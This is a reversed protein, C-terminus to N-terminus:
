DKLAADIMAEWHARHGGHVWGVRVSARLMEETPERMAQIAARAVEELRGSLHLHPKLPGRSLEVAIARAVREKQNM